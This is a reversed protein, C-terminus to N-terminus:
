SLTLKCETIFESIRDHLGGFASALLLVVVETQRDKPIAPVEGRRVM